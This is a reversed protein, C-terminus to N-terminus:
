VPTLVVESAGLQAHARHPVLVCGPAVVGDGFAVHDGKGYVDCVQGVTVGHELGGGRRGVGAGHLLEDLVGVEVRALDVGAEARREHARRRAEDSM